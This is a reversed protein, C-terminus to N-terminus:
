RQNGISDTVHSQINTPGLHVRSYFRLHMPIDGYPFDVSCPFFLGVPPTQNPLFEQNNRDQEGEMFCTSSGVPNKMLLYYSATRSSCSAATAVFPVLHELLDADNTHSPRLPRHPEHAAPLACATCPPADLCPRSSTAHAPPTSMSPHALLSHAPPTRHM